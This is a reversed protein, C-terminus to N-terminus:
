FSFIVVLNPSLFMEFKRQKGDIPMGQIDYLTEGLNELKIIQGAVINVNFYQPKTNRIAQELM